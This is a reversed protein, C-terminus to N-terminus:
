PRQTRGRERARTRAERKLQCGDCVVATMRADRGRAPVTWENGGLRVRFCDACQEAPRTQPADM